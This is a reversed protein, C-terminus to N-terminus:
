KTENKEILNDTFYQIPKYFSEVFYNDTNFEKSYVFTTIKDASIEFNFNTILKYNVPLEEASQDILKLIKDKKNSPM